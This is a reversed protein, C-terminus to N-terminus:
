SKVKEQRVLSKRWYEYCDPCLDTKSNGTVTFLQGCMTCRKENRVYGLIQPLDLSTFLTYAPRGESVMIPFSIIATRTDMKIIGADAPDAFMKMDEAERRRGKETWKMLQGIPIFDIRQKKWGMFKFYGLLLLMFQREWPLLKANNIAAIEEWYITVPHGEFFPVTKGWWEDFKQEIEDDSFTNGWRKKYIESWYGYAVDHPLGNQYMYSILWKDEVFLHNKSLQYEKTALMRQSNLKGNVMFEARTKSM